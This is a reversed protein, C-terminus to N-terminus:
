IKFNLDKAPMKPWVERILQLTLREGIFAVLLGILHAVLVAGGEVVGDHDVPLRPDPGELNGDPAVGCKKLWSVEGGALALTRMLLARHGGGGM